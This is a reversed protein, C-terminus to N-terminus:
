IAHVRREEAALPAPRGTHYGQVCDVGMRQLIDCTEKDEVGEAVTRISFNNAVALISRVVRQDAVSNRIGRVFEIDVKLESIPLHKLYTFSGFGTGFDDLSVSCGLDRLESVLRGAAPVNSAAVSETIEFIVNSPPCDHVDLRSSVHDILSPEDLSMASLNIAVPRQAAIAIGQDVAWWDLHRIAGCEELPPLFQGPSLLEGDRRMRVLLESHHVDGTRLSVIPQSYFLLDDSAIAKDLADCWVWLREQKRRHAERWERDTIDEALYSVGTARGAIDKIPYARLKVDILVGDKRRRRTELKVAQGAKVEGLLRRAEELRTSPILRDPLSSDALVETRRYGYLQEAASNWVTVRGDFNTSYMAEGSSRVIAALRANKEEREKRETIDRLFATFLMSKGPVRTVTIEAPFERGDARRCTTEIRRNLLSRDERRAKDLNGRFTERLHEPAILATFDSHLAEMRAYGFTTECAPNWELLRGAGDVTLICDLAANSSAMHLGEIQIHARRIHVMYITAGLLTLGALLVTESELPDFHDWVLAVNTVLMAWASLLVPLSTGQLGETAQGAKRLWPAAGILAIAVPDFPGLPAFALGTYESAFLLSDMVAMVFFGAVLAAFTGDRRWGRAVLGITASALLVLDLLVYAFAIDVAEARARGPDVPEGAAVWAWITAVGLLAVLIGGSLARRGVVRGGLMRVGLFLCVYVGLLLPTEVSLRTEGATALDVRGMQDAITWLALGAGIAAWAGREGPRVAACGLVSLAAFGIAVHSLVGEVGQDLDVTALGLNWALLGIGAM